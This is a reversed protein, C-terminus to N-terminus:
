CIVSRDGAVTLAHHGNPRATLRNCISPPLRHVAISQSEACERAQRIRDGARDAGLIEGTRLALAAPRGLPGARLGRAIQAGAPLYRRADRNRRAPGRNQRRDVSRTHNLMNPQGRMRFVPPPENQAGIPLSVLPWRDLHRQTVEETIAPALERLDARQRDRDVRM